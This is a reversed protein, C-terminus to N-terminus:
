QLAKDIEAFLRDNSTATNTKRPFLPYWPDGAWLAPPANNPCNRFTVITSGFGLTELSSHGLPRINEPLLPCKEKVEFGSSLMSNEFHARGEEGSFVGLKSLGGPKRFKVDYRFGSIYERARDEDPLALPWAVDSVSSNTVKNEFEIFHWWNIEIDKDIASAKKSVRDRYYYTGTHTAILIVHVHAKKPAHNEMWDILDHSVHQGTFMGDDIYVFREPSKGGCEDIKLGLTRDLIRAMMALMDRQSAGRAQIDLFKTEKWYKIPDGDVIKKSRLIKALFSTVKKVSFYTASTIHCMERLLPKREAEPFQELWTLVHEVDFKINADLRYDPVNQILKAALEAKSAM